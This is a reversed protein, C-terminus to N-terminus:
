VFDFNSSCVFYRDNLNVPISFNRMKADLESVLPSVIFNISYFNNRINRVANKTRYNTNTLGKTESLQTLINQGHNNHNNHTFAFFLTLKFYHFLQILKFLHEIPIKATKM